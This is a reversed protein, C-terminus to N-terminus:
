RKATACVKVCCYYGNTARSIHLGAKDQRILDILAAASFVGHPIKGQALDGAKFVSYPQQQLQTRELTDPLFDLQLTGKLAEPNQELAESLHSHYRPLGVSQQSGQPERSLLLWHSGEFLAPANASAGLRQLQQELPLTVEDFGGVLVSESVSNQLDVLAHTLAAEFSQREKSVVLATGTLGLLQTIYFGASNGLTNVFHLPKPLELQAAITEMVKASTAVAGCRTGLYVGTNAALNKHTCSLGGAICLQIYRDIRRIRSGHQQVIIPQLDPLQEGDRAIEHLLSYHNQIYM